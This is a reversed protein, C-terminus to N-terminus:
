SGLEHDRDALRRLKQSDLVVLRGRQFTAHGTAKLVALCRNIHVPTLALFDALEVQTLPIQYHIGDGNSLAQMRTMTAHFFYALRQLAPRAGLNLTWESALVTQRELADWLQDRIAPEHLQMSSVSQCVTATLAMANDCARVNFLSEIGIVDGPLLLATFQRRGDPTLTYRCVMGSIVIHAEFRETGCRFLQARPRFVKRPMQVFSRWEQLPPALARVYSSAEESIDV